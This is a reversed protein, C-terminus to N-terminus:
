AGKYFIAFQRNTVLCTYGEPCYVMRQWCGRGQKGGPPLDRRVAIYTPCNYSALAKLINLETNVDVTNLVFTCLVVDFPGPPMVPRHTPDYGNAVYGEGLLHRMDGGRGCGYDLIRWHLPWPAHRMLWRLPRSAGKRVMATTM